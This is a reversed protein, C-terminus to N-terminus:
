GDDAGDGEDGDGDEDDGRAENGGGGARDRACWRSRRVSEAWWIGFRRRRIRRPLFGIAPVLLRFPRSRHDDGVGHREDFAGLARADRAEEVGRRDQAVGDVLVGDVVDRRRAAVIRGLPARSIRVLHVADDVGGTPFVGLDEALQPVFYQNSIVRHLLLVYPPLPQPIVYLALIATSAGLEDLQVTLLSLALPFSSGYRKIQAYTFFHMNRLIENRLEYCQMRGGKRQNNNRQLSQFTFIISQARKIINDYGLGILQRIVGYGHVPVHVHRNQLGEVIQVVRHQVRRGMGQVNRGPLPYFSLM